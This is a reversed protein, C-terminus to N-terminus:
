IMMLYGKRGPVTIYLSVGAVPPLSNISSNCLFDVKGPIEGPKTDVKASSCWRARISFEEGSSEEPDRIWAVWASM